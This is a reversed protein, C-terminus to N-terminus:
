LVRCVNSYLDVLQKAVLKSDHHAQVYARGRLGIERRYDSNHLLTVLRESLNDPTANIIPLSSPYCSRATDSIYCVVPKGAAMAEVSVLGYAGVLLQDVVVDAAQYLTHLRRTDLGEALHLEVEYGMSRVTSVAEFVFESGKIGRHTPAHLIMFPRRPSDDTSVLPWEELDIAQPLWAAEPVISKLDPTSVLILNAYRRWQAIRRMQATTSLPETKSNATGSRNVEYQRAAQLIKDRNRIDSGHFYVVICKGLKQLLPLDIGRPLLSFSHFHFVDFTHMARVAFGAGRLHGIVWPNRDLHLNTDSRYGFGDDWYSVSCADVGMTRLSRALLSALGATNSPAHLVKM